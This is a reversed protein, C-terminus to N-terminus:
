MPQTVFYTSLDFKRHLTLLMRCCHLYQVKYMHQTLYKHTNHLLQVVYKHQTIILPYASVNQYLM